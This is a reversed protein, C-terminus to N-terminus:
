MIYLKCISLILKMSTDMLKLSKCFHNGVISKMRTTVHATISHCVRFFEMWWDTCWMHM